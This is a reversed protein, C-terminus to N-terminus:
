KEQSKEAGLAEVKQELAKLRRLAEPMRQQAATMRWFEMIPLPPSGLYVGSKEISSHVGVQGGLIVNDAVTLGDGVGAQGAMICGQGLKVSGATGSQGAMIAYPGIRSNHGIQVLNDIKSGRCVRTEYLFARDITTNAGIEVDDEIVVAGVQPIKVLGTKGPKFAFGDAGLVVGPHILVREGIFVPGVLTVQAALRTRRGIVCGEGLVCHPGLQAEDGVRCGAGLVCYPGVTVGAGLKVGAGLVATPHVEAPPPPPAYLREMLRAVAPWVEDVVIRARGPLDWAAATLILAARSQRAEALLKKDTIFSIEDEGAEKLTALGSLPQTLTEAERLEGGAWVAVEAATPRTMASAHYTEFQM